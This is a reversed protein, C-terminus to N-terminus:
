RHRQSEILIHTEITRTHTNQTYKTIHISTNNTPTDSDLTKHPRSKSQSLDGLLSYAELDSNHM